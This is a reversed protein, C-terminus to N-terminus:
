AAQVTVTHEGGSLHLLSSSGLKETHGDVSVTGNIPPHLAGSTGEPTSITANWAGEDSVWKVGFWGLPTEYGGEASPLGATKPAFLWTQGQPSTIQLGLVYFSLALTPGTSWGHAHSTFTPDYEQGETSRYSCAPESDSLLQTPSPLM